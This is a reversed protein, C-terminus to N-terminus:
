RANCPVGESNVFPAEAFAMYVFTNGSGNNEAASNRIKFGNSLFDKADSPDQEATTANPKLLGDVPNAPKRKNDMIQWNDGHAGSEKLMVWAPRFGCFIFPGDANGNGTYTGFKSFGQVEGFLYAVYTKSSKNAYDSDVTFVSSTPDTGLLDSTDQGNTSNLYLSANSALSGHHVAWDGTLSEDTRKKFIILQPVVGLGHTITAASGSGTYAYIGFKSTTNISYGSPTTDGGSLGSTTGAKWSWVVYNHADENNLNENSSVTIGTSTFTMDAFTGEANNNTTQFAANNGRVSDVVWGGSDDTRQKMWTLNPEFGVTIARNDTGDGTFLVTNFYEAPDDIATYAAM